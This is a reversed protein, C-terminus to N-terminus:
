LIRSYVRSSITTQFDLRFQSNINNSNQVSMFITVHPQFQKENLAYGDAAYPNVDPFVVFALSTIEVNKSVIDLFNGDYGSAPIWGAQNRIWKQVTLKKSKKDYCFFTRELGDKKILPLYHVRGQQLTGVGDACSVVIGGNIDVKGAYYSYDISSLRIEEALFDVVNRVDSYMKRTENAQRQARVISIYSTSSIGLFIIFIGLSILLEILTFGKLRVVAQRSFMLGANHFFYKM